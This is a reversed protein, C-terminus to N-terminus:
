HNDKWPKSSSIHFGVCAGEVLTIAMTLGLVGLVRNIRAARPMLWEGLRTRVEISFYEKGDIRIM